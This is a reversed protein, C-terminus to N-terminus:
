GTTRGCALLACKILPVGSEPIDKTFFVPSALSRLIQRRCFWDARLIESICSMVASVAWSRRLQSLCSWNTLMKNSFLEGATRV